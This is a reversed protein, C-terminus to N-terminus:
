TKNDRWVELKSNVGTKIEHVLEIDSLLPRKWGALHREMKELIGDWIHSANNPFPLGLYEFPLSAVGCGLIDAL